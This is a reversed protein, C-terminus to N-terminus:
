CRTSRTGGGLGRPRPRWRLLPFSPPLLRPLRDSQSLARRPSPLLCRSAPPPTTGQRTPRRPPPPRPQSTTLLAVSSLFRSTRAAAALGVGALNRHCSRSILMVGPLASSAVSGKLGKRWHKGPGPEGAPRKPARKRKPKAPKEPAEEGVGGVAVGKAPIGGGMGIGFSRDDTSLPLPPASSQESAVSSAISPTAAMPVSSSSPSLSPVASAAISAGLRFTLKLPAATSAIPIPVPPDVDM